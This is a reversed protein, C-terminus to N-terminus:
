NLNHYKILLLGLRNARGKIPESKKSESQSAISGELCKSALDFQSTKANVFPEAWQNTQLEKLFVLGEINKIPTPKCPLYQPLRSIAFRFSGHFLGPENYPARRGFWTLSLLSRLLLALPLLAREPGGTRRPRTPFAFARMFCPPRSPAARSAFLM